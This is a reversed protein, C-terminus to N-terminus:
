GGREDECKLYRSATQPPMDYVKGDRLSRWLKIRESHTWVLPRASGSPCGAYLGLAPIAKADWVQEPLLGTASTMATMADLLRRAEEARGAALEFHAREGTLLPWVRGVGTGDFPSGDEHEGYGDHNYRHWCPGSPTEVKLVADIVRVTDIMRSDDAARLGFRVLALADASVIESAPFWEEGQPSNAIKIREEAIPKKEDLRSPPVLRVYYGRVGVKRALVTGEVYLWREISANWSDATECLRRALETEACDDAQEAAALLAAITAGLTYPTLGAEEEWRDAPTAPGCQAIYRAALRIAPWFRRCDTASLRGSRKALDFLLVPAAVEDLQINDGFKTGDLWMDQPWRGDAEQTAAFFGM